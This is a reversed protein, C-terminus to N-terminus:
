KKTGNNNSRGSTSRKSVNRQISQTSVPAAAHESTHNHNLNADTSLDEVSNSWYMSAGLIRKMYDRDAKDNEHADCFSDCDSDDDDDDDNHHYDVDGDDDDDEEATDTHVQRPHHHHDDEDNHHHFPTSTTAAADVDLTEDQYIDMINGCGDEDHHFPDDEDDHTMDDNSENPHNEINNKFVLFSSTPLHAQGITTGVLPHTNVVTFECSSTTRGSDNPIPNSNNSTNTLVMNENEEMMDVDPECSHPTKKKGGRRITPPPPPLLVGGGEVSVDDNWICSAGLNKRIYEEDAPEAAEAEGFSDMDDDDDDDDDDDMAGYKGHMYQNNEDDSITTPPARGEGPSGDVSDSTNNSQYSSRTGVSMTDSVAAAAINSNSCKNEDFYNHCDVDLDSKDATSVNYNALFTMNLATCNNLSLRRQGRHAHKKPPKIYGSAAFYDSEEQQVISDDDSNYHYWQQGAAATSSFFFLNDSSNDLTDISNSRAMSAVSKNSSTVLLILEETTAVGNDLSTRRPRRIHNQTGRSGMYSPRGGGGGGIGNNRHHHHVSADLSSDLPHMNYKVVSPSVFLSESNNISQRRGVPLIVVACM